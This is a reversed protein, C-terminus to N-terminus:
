RGIEWHSVLYWLLCSFYSFLNLSTSFLFNFRCKQKTKKALQPTSLQRPPLFYSGFASQGQSDAPKNGAVDTCASPAEPNQPCGQTTASSLTLCSFKGDIPSLKGLCTSLYVSWLNLIQEIIYASYTSFTFILPLLGADRGSGHM